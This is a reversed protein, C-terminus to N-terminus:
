KSVFQCFPKQLTYNRRPRATSLGALEHATPTAIDVLGSIVGCISQSRSTMPEPAPPREAATVAAQCPKFTITASFSGTNPPVVAQDPPQIHAGSLGSARRAPM